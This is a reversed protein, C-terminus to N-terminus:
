DEHEQRFMNLIKPYSFMFIIADANVLYNRTVEERTRSENLGPTDIIEVGDRLIELPYHIVAKSYPIKGIAEAGKESDGNLEKEPITVCRKLDSFTMELPHVEHNKQRGLYSKVKNSIYPSIEDPLPSLFHITVGEQGYVVESIVATYPLVDDPLIKKGLMANIFTSKGNKFGGVVLIKFTERKIKESLEFLATSAKIKRSGDTLSTDAGLNELSEAYKSSALLIRQFEERLEASEKVNISM